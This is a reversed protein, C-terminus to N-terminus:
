RVPVLKVLRVRDAGISDAVGEKLSRAEAESIPRDTYTNWKEYDTGVNNLVQVMHDEPPKRM